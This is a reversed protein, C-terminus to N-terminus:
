YFYGFKLTATVANTQYSQIKTPKIWRWGAYNTVSNAPVVYATIPTTGNLTNTVMFTSPWTVKDLSVAWTTVLNSTGVGEAVADVEFIISPSTKLLAVPAVDLTVTANSAILQNSVPQAGNWTEAAQLSLTLGMALLAVSICKNFRNM